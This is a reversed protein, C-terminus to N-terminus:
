SARNAWRRSNKKKGKAETWLAESFRSRRSRCRTPSASSRRRPPQRRTPLSALSREIAEAIPISIFPALKASQPTLATMANVFSIVPLDLSPFIDVAMRRVPLEVPGYKQLYAM